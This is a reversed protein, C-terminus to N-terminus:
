EFSYLKVKKVEFRPKEKSTNSTTVAPADVEMPTTM